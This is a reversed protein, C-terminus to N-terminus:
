KVLSKTLCVWYGQKRLTRAAKMLKFPNKDLVFLTSGSGSMAVTKFKFTDILKEEIIKLLPLMRKATDFLDNQLNNNIKQYSNKQLALILEEQNSNGVSPKQDYTQFVDKTLLSAPPKVLLLSIPKKVKFHTVIEGIGQVRAPTAQKFFTADAGIKKFIETETKPDINLKLMKCILHYTTVADSTGGGLGAGLPISKKIDIHFEKNPHLLKQIEEVVVMVLNNKTEKLEQNNTTIVTRFGQPLVSVSIVDHLQLPLIISDLEHYGDSRKRIVKLSLNIKAHAKAEM